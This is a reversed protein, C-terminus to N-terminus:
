EVGSGQPVPQVPQSDRQTEVGRRGNIWGAVTGIAPLKDDGAPEAGIIQANLLRVGDTDVACDPRLYVPKEHIEKEIKQHITKQVVNLNSIAEAAARLAKDEAVQVDFAAAKHQTDCTKYGGAFGAAFMAFAALAYAIPPIMM